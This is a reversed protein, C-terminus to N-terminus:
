RVRAALAELSDSGVTGTVVYRFGDGSRWEIEAPAPRAAFSKAAADEYRAARRMAAPENTRQQALVIAGDAYVVRVVERTPDGGPVLTGPGAEFQEPTLGDVLRLAGGLVQVAQEMTVTRWGSLTPEDERPANAAMAAGGLVPAAPKAQPVAEALPSENVAQRGEEAAAGQPATPAPAREAVREKDGGQSLRDTAGRGDAPEANRMAQRGSATDAGTLRDGERLEAPAPGRITDRGWYGLGVALVLTAAWALATQPFRRRGPRGVSPSTQAPPVDIANVLSDAEVAFTKAERYRAECESCGRLHTEVRSRAEGSLEGDLLAHLDGDDPHWM